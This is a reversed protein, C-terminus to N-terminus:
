LRTGDCRAMCQAVVQATLGLAAIMAGGNWRGQRTFADAMHIGAVARLADKSLAAQCAVIRLRIM